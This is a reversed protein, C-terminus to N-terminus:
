LQRLPLGLHLFMARRVRTLAQENPDGKLGQFSSDAAEMILDEDERSLGLEKSIGSTALPHPQEGLIEIPCVMATGSGVNFPFKEISRIRQHILQMKGKFADLRRYFTQRTM